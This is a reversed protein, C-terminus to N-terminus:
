LSGRPRFRFVSCRSMKNFAAESKPSAPHPGLSCEQLSRHRQHQQFAPWVELPVFGSVGLQSAPHKSHKLNQENEAFSLRNEFVRRCKGQFATETLRQRPPRQTQLEMLLHRLGSPGSCSVLRLGRGPSRMRGRGKTGAPSRIKLPKFM